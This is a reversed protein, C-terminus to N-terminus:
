NILIITSATHRDAYLPEMTRSCMRKQPRYTRTLTVNVVSLARTPTIQPVAEEAAVVAGPSIRLTSTALFPKGRKM